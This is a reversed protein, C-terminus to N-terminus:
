NLWLGKINMQAINGPTLHVKKNMGLPQYILAQNNELVKFLEIEKNDKHATWVKTQPNYSLDLYTGAGEGEVVQILFRNKMATLQFLREENEIFQIETEGENMALPNTGSWFEITNFILADGIVGIEYVPIICFALFVVEQVVKDGVSKNVQYISQTLEFSGFCGPQTTLVIAAFLIFVTKKFKKM